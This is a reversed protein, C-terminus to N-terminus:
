PISKEIVYVHSHHAEKELRMRVVLYLGPIGWHKM